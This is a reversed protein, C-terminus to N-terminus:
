PLFPKAKGRKEMDNILRDLATQCLNFLGIAEDQNLFKEPHMLTNRDDSRLNDIMNTVENAAGNARLMEAYKGWNRESDKLTVGCAGIYERILSEVCRIIHFGSATYREVALCRGSEEIESRAMLSMYNWTKTAVANEIKETLVYPTLLRQNEACVVFLHGSEKRFETEFDQVRRHLLTLDKETMIIEDLAGAQFAAVTPALLSVIDKAREKTRPLFEPKGYNMFDGLMAKATAITFFTPKERLDHIETALWYLYYPDIEIMKSNRIERVFCPPPFVKAFPM